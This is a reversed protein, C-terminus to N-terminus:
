LELTNTYFVTGDHCGGGGSGGGGLLQQQLWQQKTKINIKDNFKLREVILYVFYKLYVTV